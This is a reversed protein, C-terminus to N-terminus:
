AARQAAPASETAETAVPLDRAFVYRGRCTKARYLAKDSRSLLMEASVGDDSSLAIGISVGIVVDHGMVEYPATVQEFIRKAMEEANDFSVVSKQVLIFEDGGMRVLLDGEGALSGLRGAVQKLLADGVPHGFKDNAAKFHDLDIAHVAVSGGAVIRPLDTALVSRNCVGTMPDLRALEEFKQKLLRQNITSNLTLRVMEYAGVMYIAMLMGLGAHPADLRTFAVAIAPLSMVTLDAVAVFPMLSLRAVIGAGFGFAIGIAMISCIADDLLLSRAALLGITFATVGTGFAYRRKWREEGARGLPPGKAARRRFALVEFVRIFDVTVGVATLVATFVDGTQRATIGGVIAQSLGALIIPVLTGHLVGLLETHVADSVSGPRSGM